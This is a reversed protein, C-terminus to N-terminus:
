KYTILHRVVSLADCHERRWVVAVLDAVLARDDIKSIVKLRLKDSVRGHYTYHLTLVAIETNSVNHELRMGVQRGHGVRRSEASHKSHLWGLTWGFERSKREEKENQAGNRDGV